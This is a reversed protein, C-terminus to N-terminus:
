HAANCTGADGLYGRVFSGLGHIHGYSYSLPFSVHLCRDIDHDDLWLKTYWMFSTYYSHVFFFYIYLLVHGTFSSGSFEPM